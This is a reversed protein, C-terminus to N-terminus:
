HLTKSICGLWWFTSVVNSDVSNLSLSEEAEAPKTTFHLLLRKKPCVSHM